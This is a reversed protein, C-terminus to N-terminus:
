LTEFNRFTQFHGTRISQGSKLKSFHGTGHSQGSGMVLQNLRHRCAKFIALVPEHVPEQWDGFCLYLGGGNGVKVWRIYQVGIAFVDGKRGSRRKGRM